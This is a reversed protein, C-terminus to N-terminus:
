WARLSSVSVEIEPSPQEDQAEAAGEKAADAQGHIRSVVTM